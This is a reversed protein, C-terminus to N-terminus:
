SLPFDTVFDMRWSTFRSTLNPLPHLLGTPLSTPDKTKKFVICEDFFNQVSARLKPWWVRALLSYTLKIDRLYASTVSTHLKEM